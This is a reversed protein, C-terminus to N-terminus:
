LKETGGALNSARHVVQLGFGTFKQNVAAEILSWVVRTLLIPPIEAKIDSLQIPYQESVGMQIVTAQQRPQLRHAKPSLDDASRAGCVEALEYQQIARVDLLFIGFEIHLPPTPMAAM